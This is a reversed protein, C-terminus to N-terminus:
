LPSRGWPAKHFRAEAVKARITGAPTRHFGHRCQLQHLSQPLDLRQRHLLIVPVVKPPVDCDDIDTRYINPLANVSQCLFVFGSQLCLHSVVARIEGQLPVVNLDTVKKVKDKM